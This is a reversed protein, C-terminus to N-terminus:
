KNLQLEMRKISATNDINKFSYTGSKHEFGGYTVESRTVFGYTEFLKQSKINTCDALISTFGHAKAEDITHQLLQSALGRGDSAISFVYLCKGSPAYRLMDFLAFMPEIKNIVNYEMELFQNYPLNLAVADGFESHSAFSCGSLVSKEMISRFVHAFEDSTIGLAVSTPEKSAFIDSTFKLSFRMDDICVTYNM